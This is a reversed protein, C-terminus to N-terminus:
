GPASCCAPTWSRGLAPCSRCRRYRGMRRSWSGVEYCFALDLLGGVPNYVLQNAVQRAIEHHVLLQESYSISDALSLSVRYWGHPVVVADGPGQNVEVYNELDFEEQLEVLKEEFFGFASTREMAERAKGAVRVVESAPILLWRRRGFILVDIFPM